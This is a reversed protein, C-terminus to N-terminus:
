NTEMIEELKLEMQFNEEELDVISKQMKEIHKELRYNKKELEFIEKLLKEYNNQRKVKM